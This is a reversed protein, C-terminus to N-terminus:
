PSKFSVQINRDYEVHRNGAWFETKGDQKRKQNAMGAHRQMRRGVNRLVGALALDARGIAVQGLPQRILRGTPQQGGIGDPGRGDDV